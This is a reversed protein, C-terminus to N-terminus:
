PQVGHRPIISGPKRDGGGSPAIPGPAAALVNYCSLMDPLPSADLHANTLETAFSTSFVGPCSASRYIEYPPNNGTWELDLQEPMSPHKRVYLTVPVLGNGVFSWFGSQVVFHPSASTGICSEQGLSAGERFGTSTSTEGAANVTSQQLIYSASSSQALVLTPLVLVLGLGAALRGITSGAPERGPEM